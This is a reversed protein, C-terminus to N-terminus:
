LGVGGESRTRARLTPRLVAAAGHHAKAFLARIASSQALSQPSSYVMSSILFIAPTKSHTPVLNIIHIIPTHSHYRRRRIDYSSSVSPQDPHLVLPTESM